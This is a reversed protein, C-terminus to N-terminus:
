LVLLRIRKFRAPVPKRVYWESLGPNRRRYPNEARTGGSYFLIENYNDISGYYLGLYNITDGPATVGGNGLIASSTTGTTGAGGLGVFGPNAAIFNTSVPLATYTAIDFTEVFYGSGLPMMNSSDILSSTQGSGDDPTQDDFTILLAHAPATTM